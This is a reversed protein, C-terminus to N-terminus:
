HIITSRKEPANTRLWTGLTHEGFWAIPGNKIYTSSWWTSWLNGTLASPINFKDNLFGPLKKGIAKDLGERISVMGITAATRLLMEGPDHYRRLRAKWRMQWMALGKCATWDGECDWYIEAEATGVSGYTDGTKAAVVNGTQEFDAIDLAKDDRKLNPPEYISIGWSQLYFNGNASYDWARAPKAGKNSFKKVNAKKVQDDKCKTKDFKKGGKGDDSWYKGFEKDKKEDPKKPDPPAKGAENCADEAAGKIADDAGEPLGGDGCFVTPLSGTIKGALGKIPGSDIAAVVKCLGGGGGSCGGALRELVGAFQNPVFEGAMQCLKWESDEQVPLSVGVGIRYQVVNNEGPYSPALSASLGIAPMGYAASSSASGEAVGLLPIVSAIVKQGTQLKGIIKFVNETIKPDKEAMKVLLNTIAESADIGLECAAGTLPNPFFITIICAIVIIALLVGLFIEIGRWVVLVAMVMSMLINLLAIINMGRANWVANEFAAADAGDQLHERWVAADGVSAINWLAGVLLVGMVIGLVLIAGQDDRAFSTQTSHQPM